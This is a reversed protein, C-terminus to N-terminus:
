NNRKIGSVKACSSEPEFSERKRPKASKEPGLITHLKCYRQVKLGLISNDQHTIMENLGISLVSFKWPNKRISLCKLLM